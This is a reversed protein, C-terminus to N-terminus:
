LKQLENKSTINDVWPTACRQLQLLTLSPLWDVLFSPVFPATCDNVLLQLRIVAASNIQGNTAVHATLLGM